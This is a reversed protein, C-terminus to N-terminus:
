KKTQLFEAISDRKVLREELTLKRELLNFRLSYTLTCSLKSAHTNVMDQVELEFQSILKQTLTNAVCESSDYFDEGSFYTFALGCSCLQNDVITLSNIDVQIADFPTRTSDLRNIAVLCVSILQILDSELNTNTNTTMLIV